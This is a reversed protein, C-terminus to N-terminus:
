SIFKSKFDSLFIGEIFPSLQQYYNGYRLFRMHGETKFPANAFDTASPKSLHLKNGGKKLMWKVDDQVLKVTKLDRATSNPNFGLVHKAHSIFRKTPDCIMALIKVKPNIKKMCKARGLLQSYNGSIIQPTKEFLIEDEAALPLTKM